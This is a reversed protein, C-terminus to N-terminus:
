NIRRAFIFKRHFFISFIVSIENQLCLKLALRLPFQTEQSYKLNFAVGYKLFHISKIHLLLLLFHKTQMLLYICTQHPTFITFLHLITIIYLYFSILTSLMCKQNGTFTRLMHLCNLNVASNASKVVLLSFYIYLYNCFTFISRFFQQGHINGFVSYSKLLM